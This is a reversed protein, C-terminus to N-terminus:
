LDLRYIASKYIEYANRCPTPGKSTHVGRKFEYELAFTKNPWYVFSSDLEGSNWLTCTDKVSFEEM